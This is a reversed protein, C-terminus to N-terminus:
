QTAPGLLLPVADPVYLRGCKVAQGHDHPQSLRPELAM